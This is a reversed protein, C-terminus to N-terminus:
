RRGVQLMANLARELAARGNNTLSILHNDAGDASRSVFGRSTLAIIWRMVTTTPADLEAAIDEAGCPSMGEGYLLLLIDWAPEGFLDAPLRQNRAQRMCRIDEALRALHKPAKENDQVILRM